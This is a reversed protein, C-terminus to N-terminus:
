SMERGYEVWSTIPLPSFLATKPYREKSIELDISCLGRRNILDSCLLRRGNNKVANLFPYYVPTLVIIANGLNTLMNIFWNIASVVGPSFRLCEEKIAGPEPSRFFLQVGSPPLQIYVFSCSSIASFSYSRSPDIAATDMPQSIGALRRQVAPIFALFGPQLVSMALYCLSGCRGSMVAVCGPVWPM